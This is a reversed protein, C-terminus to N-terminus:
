VPKPPVIDPPTPVPPAYVPPSALPGSPADVTKMDVTTGTNRDFVQVTNTPTPNAIKNVLGAISIVMGMAAAYGLAHKPDFFAMGVTVGALGGGAVYGAIVGIDVRAFTM